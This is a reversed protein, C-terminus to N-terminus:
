TYGTLNIPQEPLKLQVVNTLFNFMELLQERHSPQKPVILKKYVLYLVILVILACLIITWLSPISTIECQFDFYNFNENEIVQHMSQQFDELHLHVVIHLLVNQRSSQNNNRLQDQNTVWKSNPDSFM